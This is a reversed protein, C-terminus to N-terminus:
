KEKLNNNIIGLKPSNVQLTFVSNSTGLYKITALIQNFNTKKIEMNDRKEEPDFIIHLTLENRLSEIQACIFDSNKNRWRNFTEGNMGAPIELYHHKGVSVHLIVGNKFTVTNM